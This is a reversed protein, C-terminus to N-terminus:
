MRWSMRVGIECIAIWASRMKSPVAFGFVAAPTMASEQLVMTWSKSVCESIALLLEMTSISFGTSSSKRSMMSNQTSNYEAEALM